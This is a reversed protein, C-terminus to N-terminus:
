RRHGRRLGRTAPRRSPIKAVWCRAPAPACRDDSADASGRTAWLGHKQAGQAMTYYRRHRGSYSCSARDASTDTEALEVGKRRVDRGCSRALIERCAGSSAHRSNRFPGDAQYRRQPRKAAECGSPLFALVEERVNRDRKRSDGGTAPGVLRRHAPAGTAFCPPDATPEGVSRWNRFAPAHVRPLLSRAPVAGMMDYVIAGAPVRPSDVPVPRRDSFLASRPSNMRTAATGCGASTFDQWRAYWGGVCNSNVVSRALLHRTLDV